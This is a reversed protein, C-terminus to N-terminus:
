SAEPDKYNTCSGCAHMGFKYRSRFQSCRGTEKDLPYGISCGGLSAERFGFSGEVVWGNEKLLTILDVLLRGEDPNADTKFFIDFIM